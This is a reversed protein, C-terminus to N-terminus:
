LNNSIIKPLMEGLESSCRTNNWYFISNQEVGLEKLKKSLKLSTVQQKLKM